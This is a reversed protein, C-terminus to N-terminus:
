ASGSGYPDHVPLLTSTDFSRGRDIAIGTSTQRVTVDSPLGSPSPPLTLRLRDIVTRGSYISLIDHKLQYSDANSLGTLDVEGFVNLAVAGNFADPQDIQLHAMVGRGPDGRVTVSQGHSVSGKFELQGPRSQANSVTFNGNGKVSTDVILSSGQVFNSGNSSFRSGDGGNIVASSFVMNFTGALNAHNALNITFEGSSPFETHVDLTDSGKVNVTVQDGSLRAIDLSLHANHSLNLTTPAANQNELGIVLTNGGLDNGRINMTGAQMDLTDGPQPVGTPSWDIAARANNRGGGVWTRNTMVNWERTQRLRTPRSERILNEQKFHAV